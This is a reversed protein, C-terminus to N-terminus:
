TGEPAQFRVGRWISSPGKPKGTSLMGRPRTLGTGPRARKPEVGADVVKPHKAFLETFKQDDTPPFGGDKLYAAYEGFLETRLVCSAPDFALQEEIFAGLLDVAGRWEATDAKIQESPEPLRQEDRGGYVRLAGEVMWALVAERQARGNEVRQRLGQTGRRDEPREIEESPKRYRYPFTVLALRRWTGHDTEYVRPRHNTTIFLTHTSRWTMNDRGAKRATVESTGVITKLRKISFIGDPLEELIALRLGRLTTLETPHDSPRANVLRDPVIGAYTGVAYRCAVVTSKGNEGDGFLIPLVDDPPIEGTLAQGLKLRLWERTAEDPLAQLAEIWDPHTAGPVYDCSTIKTLLLEPDHPQIEGTRLDVVGNQCNLLHAYEPADLDSVEESLLGRLLSAVNRITTARLLTVLRKARDADTDAKKLQEGHISKLVRRVTETMRADSFERWVKGTWRLWGLGGVYRYTPRLRAGVYESLPSDELRTLEEAWTHDEAEGFLDNPLKMRDM